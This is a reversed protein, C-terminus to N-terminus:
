NLFPAGNIYTSYQEPDIYAILFEIKKFQMRSENYKEIISQNPQITNVSAKLEKLSVTCMKLESSFWKKIHIVPLEQAESPPTQNSFMLFTGALVFAFFLYKM